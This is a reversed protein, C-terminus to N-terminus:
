PISRTHGQRGLRQRVAGHSHLPPLLATTTVLDVQLVGRVRRLADVLQQLRKPPGQVLLVELSQHDELFVHQSSIVEKVFETQAQAVAQRVHDAVARYILTLTGALVAGERRQHHRAVAQRILQALVQSRNSLGSEAVVADLRDLLEAPLSISLRAIPSTGTSAM